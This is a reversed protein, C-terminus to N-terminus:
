LVANPDPIFRLYPKPKEILSVNALSNIERMAEEDSTGHKIVLPDGPQWNAPTAVPYHDAIQLARLCRVVEGFNRGVSAPYSQMLRVRRKPDIIFLTRVTLPMGTENNINTRDHLPNDLMGYLEAIAGEQDAIIPFPWYSGTAPDAPEMGQVPQTHSSPSPHSLTDCGAAAAIDSPVSSLEILDSIWSQHSALSDTSLAIVKCDLETFIPLLRKLEVM